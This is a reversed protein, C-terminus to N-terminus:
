FVVPKDKLRNTMKTLKYLREVLQDVNANETIRWCWNGQGLTSPENMRASNDCGLLDQMQIITTKAVSTMAGRIMGWHFADDVIGFYAKAMALEEVSAQKKWGIVTHSDHTGPYIIMNERYNHPIHESKGTPDFAFQLVKMSPFGTAERLQHVEKTMYGLDEAIIPLNGLEKKLQNFLAIGPGPQWSGNKATQEGAPVRWYSEFGRFHDIRIVDFIHILWKIRQVWWAYDQAKHVQWDYLPNGWLQGDATFDDPPCGGVYKLSLDDNLQFLAPNAWLDASDEAVYIPLDGIIQINKQNVYRKLKHWQRFFMYQMFCHFDIERDNKVSFDALAASDRLRYATPWNMWKQGNHAKKLAMFLAYDNLWFANESKFNSFAQNESDFNNYATKLIKFRSQYLQYYDVRAASEVKAYQDIDRQTLLADAKLTDLDIFYPNGAYTSFSQYPSDGYGTPGVPLVQWYKQGASDLFDAFAYAKEGLSGIGYNSALSSIHMLVGSYRENSIIKYNYKDEM